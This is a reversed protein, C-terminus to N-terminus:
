PAPRSALAPTRSCTSWIRLLRTPPSRQAKAACSAPLHNDRDWNEPEPKQDILGYLYTREIARKFYEFLHHPTYRSTARESTPRYHGTYNAADHYGTEIAFDPKTDGIGRAKPICLNDFSWADPNRM